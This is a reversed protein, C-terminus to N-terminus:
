IVFSIQKFDCEIYKDECTLLQLMGIESIGTIKASIKRNNYIYESFDNFRYLAEIYDSRIAEFLENELMTYRKAVCLFLRDVCGAIDHDNKTINKLSIPNLANSIFTEQNINIGIGAISQCFESGQISNEILLGAVKKDDIYIDNPWRIKVENNPIYGKVFDYVALSISMNLVFQDKIQLFLPYLVFSVTLNKGAESEWKNDGTGRGNKQIRTLIMSGEPLFDKSLIEKAYNNTSELSKKEILNYVLM